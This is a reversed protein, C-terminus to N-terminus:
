HNFIFESSNLLAWFIDEYAQEKPSADNANLRGAIRALPDPGGGGKRMGKAAGKQQMRNFMARARPGMPAAPEPASNDTITDRPENLFATWKNIEAPTPKRSVTRLYLSEIKDRDSGQMQLVDALATGPIPTVARNTLNSNLLLLAQPITGEFDKQEFEEDV